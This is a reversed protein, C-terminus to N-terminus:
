RRALDPMQTPIPAVEEQVQYLASRVTEDDARLKLLARQFDAKRQQLEDQQHQVENLLM